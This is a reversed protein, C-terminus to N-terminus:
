YVKVGKVTVTGQSIRVSISANVGPLSLRSATTKVERWVPRGDKGTSLGLRVAEGTLRNKVPLSHRILWCAAYAITEPEYDCTLASRFWFNKETQLTCGLSDDSNRLKYQM